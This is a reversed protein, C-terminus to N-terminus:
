IYKKVNMNLGYESELTWRKRTRWQVQDKQLAPLATNFQWCGLCRCQCFLGQRPRNLGWSPSVPKHNPQVRLTKPWFEVWMCCYVFVCIATARHTGPGRLTLAFDDLFGLSVLLANKKHSGLQCVACFWVHKYSGRPTGGDSEKAEKGCMWLTVETVHVQTHTHTTHM